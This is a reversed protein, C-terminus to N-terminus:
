IALRGQGLGRCRCSAPVSSSWSLLAAAAAPALRGACGACPRGALPRAGAPGVRTGAAGASTPARPPRECRGSGAEAAAALTPARRGMPLPARVGPGPGPLGRAASVPRRRYGRGRLVARPDAWGGGRLAAHAGWAEHPSAPLAGGREGEQRLLRAPAGRGSPQPAGRVGAARPSPSGGRRRRLVRRM